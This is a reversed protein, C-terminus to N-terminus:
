FGIVAAHIIRLIIVAIVFVGSSVFMGIFYKSSNKRLERKKDKYDSFTIKNGPDHRNFMMTGLQRFGFAFTDFAGYYSVTVLAASCAVVAMAVTVGNVARTLHLTGTFFYILFTVIGIGIGICFSIINAKWNFKKKVEEM